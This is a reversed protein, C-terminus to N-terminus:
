AVRFAIRRDSNERCNSVQFTGLTEPSDDIPIQLQAYPEFEDDVMYAQWIRGANTVLAAANTMALNVPQYIQRGSYTRMRVVTGTFNVERIVRSIMAPVGNDLAYIDGWIDGNADATGASSRRARAWATSAHIGDSEPNVDLVGCAFHEGESASTSNNYTEIWIQYPTYFIDVRDGAAVIDFARDVGAGFIENGDQDRVTCLMRTATSRVFDFEVWNGGISVSKFTDAVPETWPSTLGKITTDMTDM